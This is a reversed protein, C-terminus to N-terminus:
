LTYVELHADPLALIDKIRKVEAAMRERLSNLAELEDDKWAGDASHEVWIIYGQLARRAKKGSRLDITGDKDVLLMRTIMTPTQWLEVERGNVELRLNMSM